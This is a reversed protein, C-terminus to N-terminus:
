AAPKPWLETQPDPMVLVAHRYVIPKGCMVCKPKAKPTDSRCNQCVIMQEPKPMMNELQPIIKMAAGTFLALMLLLFVQANSLQVM